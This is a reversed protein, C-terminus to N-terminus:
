EIFRGHRCALRMAEFREQVKVGRENTISMAKGLPIPHHDRMESLVQRLRIKNPHDPQIAWHM